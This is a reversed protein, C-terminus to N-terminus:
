GNGNDSTQALVIVAGEDNAAGDSIQQEALAGLIEINRGISRRFLDYGEKLPARIM